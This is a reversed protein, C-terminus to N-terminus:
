LYWSPQRFVGLGRAMTSRTVTVGSRLLRAEQRHLPLFDVFKRVIVDTWFNSDYRSNELLRRRTKAQSFQDCCKCKYKMYIEQRVYYAAKRVSLQKIVEPKRISRLTDRCPCVKSALDM